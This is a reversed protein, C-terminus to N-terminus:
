NEERRVIRVTMGIRKRAWILIGIGLVFLNAGAFLGVMSLPRVFDQGSVSEQYACKLRVGAYEGDQMKMQLIRNGTYWIAVKENAHKNAWEKPQTDCESTSDAGIEKGSALVVRVTWLSGKSPPYVRLYGEAVSLKDFPPIETRYYLSVSSFIMLAFGFAYLNTAPFWLFPSDKRVDSFNFLVWLSKIKEMVTLSAANM